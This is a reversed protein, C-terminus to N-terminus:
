LGDLFLRSSTTYEFYPPVSITTTRTTGRSWPGIGGPPSM